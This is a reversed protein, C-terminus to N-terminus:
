LHRFPLFNDDNPSAWDARKGRQIGRVSAIINLNVLQATTLRKAREAPGRTETSM